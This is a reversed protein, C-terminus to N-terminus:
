DNFNYNQSGSNDTINEHWSCLQSKKLYKHAVKLTNKSSFQQEAM